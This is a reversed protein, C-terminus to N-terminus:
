RSLDLTQSRARKLESRSYKGDHYAKDMVEKHWEVPLREHRKEHSTEKSDAQSLGASSEASTQEFGEQVEDWLKSQDRAARQRELCARLHEQWARERDSHDQQPRYDVPQVPDDGTQGGPDKPKDDKRTTRKQNQPAESPSQEESEASDYLLPNRAFQRPVKQWDEELSKRAREEEEKQKKEKTAEADRRRMSRWEAVADVWPRFSRVQDKGWDVISSM